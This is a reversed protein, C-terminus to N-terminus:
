AASPNMDAWYVMMVNTTPGATCGAQTSANGAPLNTNTYNRFFGTDAGFQLMGNSLIRVSSYATGAYTFTFGGTFNVTAKDDDGPYGTCTRDWAVVNAATEWSFSDSRFTYTSAHAPTASFVFLAALLPALWRSLLDRM